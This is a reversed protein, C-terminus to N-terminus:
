RDLPALRNVCAAGGGVRRVLVGGAASCRDREVHVQVVLSVFGILLLLVGCVVAGFAAQSGRRRPALAVSSVVGGAMLATGTLIMVVPTM